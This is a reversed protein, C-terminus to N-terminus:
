RCHKQAFKTNDKENMFDGYEFKAEPVLDPFMENLTDDDAHAMFTELPKYIACFEPGNKGDRLAELYFTVTAMNDSLTVGNVTNKGAKYAEELFMLATKGQIKGNGPLTLLAKGASRNVGYNMTTPDLRLIDIIRPEGINKWKSIAQLVGYIKGWRLINVLEWYMSYALLPENGEVKANIPDKQDGPGDGLMNVAELGAEYGELFVKLAGKDDGNRQTVLGVFYLAESQKVLLQAKEVDSINQSEAIVAKYMEASAKANELGQTDLGRKSYLTAAEEKTNSFVSTSLALALLIALTRM